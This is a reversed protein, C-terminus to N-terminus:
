VAGAGAAGTAPLLSLSLCLIAVVTLVCAILLSSSHVEEILAVLCLWGDVEATARHRVEWGHDESSDGNVIMVSSSDIM